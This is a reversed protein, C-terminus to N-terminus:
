ASASHGFIRLVPAATLLSERLPEGQEFSDAIRMIVEKARARHGEAREYEGEGGYLDWATAHVRWASVPIEFRDLIALASEICQRAGSSNKEAEAVRAKTEWALAQMNPEAMSLASNLFDDVELRANPIDGAQLRTESLGLRAHMRWHWHLFFGPTTERVRIQAFSQLAEAYNGRYLETYGSAIRAIAGPEAVAQEAESSMILKSLERVGEFDFCLARLWVERLIFIWPDRLNEGNKRALERGTRVIGLSEGFRGRLMLSLSKVRLALLWAASTTRAILGAEAKELAGEYDGQIAQVYAYLLDEPISAGNLRRITLHASACVEADENRWGNYLLRFCGGALQRQALLLADGHVRSAEIAQECIENGRAPNLYWAPFALHALADIRAKGLGAEAARAAASEYAVFADSMAALAYHADGIRQLIQVETQIRAATTLSLTLELAHQLVQISDRHAFRRAANEATLMLCRTAQEYNRGEEFHLAVESALEPRGATCAAM